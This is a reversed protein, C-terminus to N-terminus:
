GDSMVFYNHTHVKGQRAFYKYITAYTFKLPLTLSLLLM